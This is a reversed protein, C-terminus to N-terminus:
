VNKYKIVWMDYMYPRTFMAGVTSRTLKPDRSRLVPIMADLIAYRGRPGYRAVLVFIWGIVFAVALAVQLAPLAANVGPHGEKDLIFVAIVAVGDFAVSGVVLVIGIWAQVRTAWFARSLVEGFRPHWLARTGPTKRAFMLRAGETSANVAAQNTSYPAIGSTRAWEDFRATSQLVSAIQDQSVGPNGQRLIVQASHAANARNGRAARIFMILGVVGAFAAVIVFADAPGWTDTASSPQSGSIFIRAAGVPIFLVSIAAGILQPRIRGLFVAGPVGIRSAWTASRAPPVAEPPESPNWVPLDVAIQV